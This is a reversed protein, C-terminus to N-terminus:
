RHGTYNPAMWQYIQAVQARMDQQGQQMAALTRTSSVYDGAAALLAFIALGLAWRTWVGTESSIRGSNNQRLPMRNIAAEAALRAARIIRPDLDEAGVELPIEHPPDDAASEEIFSKVV